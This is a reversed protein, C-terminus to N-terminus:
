RSVNQKRVSELEDLLDNKWTLGVTNTWRRVPLSTRSTRTRGQHRVLSPTPSLKGYFNYEKEVILSSFFKFSVKYKLINPAKKM